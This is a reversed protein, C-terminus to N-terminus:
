RPIPTWWRGGPHIRQRRAPGTTFASDLARDVDFGTENTSNDTWALDLISASTATATLSSPAAPASTAESGKLYNELNTHGNAALNNRDAANNPNLGNATEWVDPMGDDDADACPTGGAIVPFGGVDNETLPTATIGTNTLYDNIVRTDVADRNAVWTGDCALRRSAGVIPILNGALGDVPEAVIPYTTNPLPTYRRWEMPVAGNEVGNEQTIRSALLWQDRAPDPQNWGMNGSLYISPTGSGGYFRQDNLQIEHWLLTNAPHRKAEWGMGYMPGKKTLNGIIDADSQGTAQYAYFSNNYAINNVFRSRKIKLNPNRHSDNMFLNHHIDIDTVSNDDGGGGAILGTSHPNLGESMISWSVTVDKLNEKLDRAWLGIGEDQNWSVSVHDIVVRRAPHDKHGVVLCGGCEDLCSPNFGHRIRLYRLVVDTAGIRICDDATNKGNLMIGGGPATQGAVTLYPNTVTIGSNLLITGGVRFVCTRPGTAEMCARLSGSGSDNLNTVLM